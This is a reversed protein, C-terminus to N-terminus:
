SAKNWAFLCILDLSMKALREIIVVQKEQKKHRRMTHVM